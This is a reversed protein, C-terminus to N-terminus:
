NVGELVATWFVRTKPDVGREAVAERVFPLGYYAVCARVQELNGEMLVRKLIWLPYTDLDEVLLIKDWFLGKITALLRSRSPKDEIREDSLIEMGRAILRIEIDANLAEAIKKLTPLSYKDWKGEYRHMTPASTGVRNALEELSLDRKKRLLRIQTGIPAPTKNEVGSM